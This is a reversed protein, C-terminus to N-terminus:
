SSALKEKKFLKRYANYIYGLKRDDNPYDWYWKAPLALIREFENPSVDLKKSIYMKEVAIQDADYPTSKLQELAVERDIQGSCIQSSLTARRYDIGFKEFLYYSQIFRTYRSEYHKRGYCRYDFKENLLKSVDDPVFPVHDLLYVTRIGKVLKFYIEKKYDFTPFKLLRRGSFTQQIHNFYKLDKANYHWSKPLIGETSLNGGNIIYKVDYKAAFHHLAAPIAIDTPTEAEPVSAKLFSLQLDKFEEWDLVYSEYDIGLKNTINRINIVAEESDWGNDMHVALPRLGKQRVLYAVYSSDSGGSVGIICDYDRGRGGRKIDEILYNLETDSQKGQYKHSARTGLFEICHNCQGREDFTIDLDSTDM